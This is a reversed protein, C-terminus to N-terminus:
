SGARGLTRGTGSVVEDLKGQVHLPGDRQPSVRLEGYRDARPQSAREPPEGSATFGRGQPPQRLVAQEEVPRM